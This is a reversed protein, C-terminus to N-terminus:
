CSPFFWFVEMHTGGSALVDQCNGWPTVNEQSHCHSIINSGNLPPIIMPAQFSLFQTKWGMVISVGGNALPLLTRTKKQLLHRWKDFIKM